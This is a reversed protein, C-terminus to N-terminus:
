KSRSRLNLFDAASACRNSTSVYPSAAMLSLLQRSHNRFSLFPSNSMSSLYRLPLGFTYSSTSNSANNSWSKHWVCSSCNSPCYKSYFMLNREKVIFAWSKIFLPPFKNTCRIYAERVLRFWWLLDRIIAISANSGFMSPFVATIRTSVCWLLKAAHCHKVVHKLVPSFRSSFARIPLRVGGATNVLCQVKRNNSIGISSVHDPQVVSGNRHLHWLIPSEPM